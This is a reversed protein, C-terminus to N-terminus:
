TIRFKKFVSLGQLRRWIYTPLNGIRKRNAATARVAALPLTMWEWLLLGYPTSVQESKYGVNALVQGCCTQILGIEASSLKQRWRYVPETSLGKTQQDQSYSSHCIPVELMRPHYDLSLWSAINQIQTEPTSVLDEYQQIHVRQPGFKEQAAVAANVTSRWLMSLLLINYSEASRKCEQLWESEHEVDVNQEKKRWDRYSAVVARPDRVMCIVRGNPFRELIEPLRFVHRPTKEGWIQKGARRAQLRCYAEFYADADDGIEDAIMRLENRSYKSKEPDGKFAYRRHGLRLFYDECRRREAPTLARPPKSSLKPRLDDFYHTEKTVFVDPHQSLIKSMMATGSRSTGVIFIEGQEPTRMKEIM